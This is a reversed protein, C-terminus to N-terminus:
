TKCGRSVAESVDKAGRQLWSRSRRMAQEFREDGTMGTPCHGRRAEHVFSMTAYAYPRSRGGRGDFAVGAWHVRHREGGVAAPAAPAAVSVVV